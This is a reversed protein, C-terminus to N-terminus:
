RERRIRIGAARARAEPPVDRGAPNLDLGDLVVVLDERTAQGHLYEDVTLALAELAAREREPSAAYSASAWALPGASERDLRQLARGVQHIYTRARTAAKGNLGGDLARQAQERDATLMDTVTRRWREDFGISRWLREFTVRYRRDESRPELHFRVIANGAPTTLTQACWKATVRDPLDVVPAEWPVGAGDPGGAASNM